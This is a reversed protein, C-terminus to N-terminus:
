GAIITWESTQSGTGSLDWTRAGSAVDETGEPNYFMAVGGTTTWPTGSTGSTAAARGQYVAPKGNPLQWLSKVPVAAAATLSYAHETKTFDADAM